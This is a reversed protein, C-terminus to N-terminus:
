AIGREHSRTQQYASGLGNTTKRGPEALLIFTTTALVATSRSRWRPRQTSDGAAEEAIGGRGIEGRAFGDAM